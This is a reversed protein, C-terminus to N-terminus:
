TPQTQYFVSSQVTKMCPKISHSQFTQTKLYINTFSRDSDTIEGDDSVYLENQATETHDESELVDGQGLPVSEEPISDDEGEESNGYDKSEFKVKSILEQLKPVSM